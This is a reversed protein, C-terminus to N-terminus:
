DRSPQETNTYLGRWLTRGKKEGASAICIFRWEAADSCSVSVPRAWLVDGGIKLM